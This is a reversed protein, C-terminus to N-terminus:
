SFNLNFDKLDFNERPPDAAASLHFMLVNTKKAESAKHITKVWSLEFDDEELSLCDGGWTVVKKKLRNRGMQRVDCPSSSVGHLHRLGVNDSIFAKM